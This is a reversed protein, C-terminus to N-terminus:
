PQQAELAAEYNGTADKLGVELTWLGPIAELDGTGVENNSARALVADQRVRGRPDRLKLHLEGDTLSFKVTLRVRRHSETVELQLRRSETKSEFSSKHQTRSVTESAAAGLALACVACVALLTKRM